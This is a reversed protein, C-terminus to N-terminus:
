PFCFDAFFVMGCFRSHDELQECLFDLGERFLSYCREPLAQARRILPHHRNAKVAQSGLAITWAYAIVLILLLRSMHEPKRILSENWHWGGTKLDRFSQEQWNREAYQHGTGQPDNTVLAWPEDYGLSWLALARGSIRGRQKFVQGEVSWIQGPQVQQAITYEAETTVVKTQCTVRFLFHWGLAEVARCLDPSCGIGRDALVLVKCDAPLGQKVLALLGSIMGVQGEAPYAEAKNAKYCRWVLPICRRQWAVGVVMVALRDHLKTEDVLLSIKKLGLVSIVWYVWEVWIVAMPLRKNALFRRIRRTGSAVKELGRMQRAIKQQQSGEAKMVAYSMLAVNTVQWTNLCPLHSEVEQEWQSLILNNM